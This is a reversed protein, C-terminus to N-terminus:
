PSEYPVNRTCDNMARWGSSSRETTSSEAYGTRPSSGQYVDDATAALLASSATHVREAAVQGGPVSSRSACSTASSRAAGSGPTSTRVSTSRTASAPKSGIMSRSSSGDTRAASAPSGT